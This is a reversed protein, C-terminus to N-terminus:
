MLFGRIDFGQSKFSKSGYTNGDEPYLYYLHYGDGTRVKFTDAVTLGHEACYALFKEEDDVDLVLIGNYPGCAIGILDTDFDGMSIRETCGKNWGGYRPAKAINPDEIGNAKVYENGKLTFCSWISALDKFIELQTDRDMHGNMRANEFLQFFNIKSMSDEKDALLEDCYFAM